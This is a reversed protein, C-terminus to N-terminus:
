TQTIARVLRAYTEDLDDGATIVRIGPRAARIGDLRARADSVAAEILPEPVDLQPHPDGSALLEARRQRFRAVTTAEDAELLVEVADAGARGAVDSLQELFEPRGVYQPLVVDHGAALHTEATTLAIARAALRTEEHEQWGGMSMRITDVDLLLALPHDDVYRRALSTKGVGPAGNLHILRAV